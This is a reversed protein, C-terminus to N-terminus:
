RARHTIGCARGETDFDLLTNEDMDKTEAVDAPWLQIYLRDADQFYQIKM